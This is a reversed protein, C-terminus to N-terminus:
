CSIEPFSSPFHATPPPFAMMKHNLNANRQNSFLNFLYGYKQEKDTRRKHPKYTIPGKRLQTIQKKKQNM